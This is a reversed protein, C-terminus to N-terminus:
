AYRPRVAQLDRLHRYFTARELPRPASIGDITVRIGVGGTQVARGRFVAEPNPEVLADPQTAGRTLWRTGPSSWRRYLVEPAVERRGARGHLPTILPAAAIGPADLLPVLRAGYHGFLPPTGEPAEHFLLTADDVIIEGTYERESFESLTASGAVAVGKDSRILPVSRVAEERALALAEAPETPLGWTTAVVSRGLPVFGIEAWLHDARMLRTLVLSLAADAGVVIVRLPEEPQQPAPGPAGLHPVDPRAAIEQLSPTPDVPLIRRAEEDLFRLDSRTPEAPLPHADPAHEACLRQAEPGCALILLAM